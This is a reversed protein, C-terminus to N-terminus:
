IFLTKVVRAELTVYEEKAEKLLDLAYEGDTWRSSSEEFHIDTDENYRYEGGKYGYFEKTLAQEIKELNEEKTSPQNTIDFAVEAYVGRWSFPESLKYTFSANEPFSEFYQKLEGLTM